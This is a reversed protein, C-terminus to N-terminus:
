ELCRWGVIAGEKDFVRSFLCLGVVVGGEGVYIIVWKEEDENQICGKKGCDWPSYVFRQWLDFM